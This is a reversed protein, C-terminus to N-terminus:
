IHFNCYPSKQIKYMGNYSQHVNSNSPMDIQNILSVMRAPSFRVSHYSAAPPIISLLYNIAKPLPPPVELNTVAQQQQQQEQRDQREQRQERANKRRASGSPPGRMPSDGRAVKRPRNTLFDEEYEDTHSRKSVSEAMAPEQYRPVPAVQTVHPEPPRSQTPSLVLQVSIPNFTASTFRATFTNLVPDDPFLEKMKNEINMIQVMDGYRTEHHHMFAFLIRSKPINAPTATLRRTSTEFVARANTIDNIDILHKLYEIAFIEDEPFLKSGREFIKTAAPDQYCYHEMLASAIYVDSTIRGRRRADAFVQRSGAMEGPKGKGQIRRMARMLAIWVYSVLKSLQGLRDAFSKKVEDIENKKAIEKERAEELEEDDDDAQTDPVASDGETKALREEVLAIHSAEEDRAKKVLDYLADLLRDYPEKVISGRRVPDSEHDTIIELRDARKAALLYSEPNAEIGKVLFDDGEAAMDHEYCFNAGDFWIEPVFRLCMMAQRYVFIIRSKYLAPDDGKLILPDDIEWKIWQKWISVQKAFHDYGECGPLPPLRPLSMRNLDKTINQLSTYSSRATM